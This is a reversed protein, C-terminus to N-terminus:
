QINSGSMKIFKTDLGFYQTSGRELQRSGSISTRAMEAGQISMRSRVSDRNRFVSARMKYEGFISDISKYMYSLLIGRDSQGKSISFKSVKKRGTEEIQSVLAQAYETRKTKLYRMWENMM